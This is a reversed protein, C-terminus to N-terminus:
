WGKGDDRISLKTLHPFLAAASNGALDFRQSVALVRLESLPRVAVLPMEHELLLGGVRLETLQRCDATASILACDLCVGSLM